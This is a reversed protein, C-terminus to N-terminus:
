GYKNTMLKESLCKGYSWGRAIRSRITRDSVGIGDAADKISPYGGIPFARRTNRMQETPTSWKCNDKLYGKKVNIRDLTKGDPREGMDELFNEFKMWRDCVSVGLGGYHKYTDKKKNTCREIMARWSNWTPTGTMGHKFNGSNKDRKYIGKPM